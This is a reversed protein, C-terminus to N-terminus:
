CVPFTRVTLIMIMVTVLKEGPEVPLVDGYGITLMTVIGFYITTMGNSFRELDPVIKGDKYLEQAVLWGCGRKEKLCDEHVAYFEGMIWFYMGSWFSLVVLTLVIRALRVGARGVPPWNRTQESFFNGLRVGRFLRVVALISAVKAYNRNGTAEFIESLVFSFTSLIDFPFQSWFYNSAMMSGDDVIFRETQTNHVFAFRFNLCIDLAFITEVVYSVYQAGSSRLDPMEQIPTMIISYLITIPVIYTWIQFILKPDDPYRVWPLRSGRPGDPVVHGNEKKHLYRLAVYFEPEKHKFVDKVHSFRSGVPAGSRIIVDDEYHNRATLLGDKNETDMIEKESASMNVAGPAEVPPTESSAHVPM